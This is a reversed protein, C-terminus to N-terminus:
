APHRQLWRPNSGPLNRRLATGGQVPGREGRCRKIKINCNKKKKFDEGESM